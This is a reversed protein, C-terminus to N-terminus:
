RESTKGIDQVSESPLKGGDRPLDDVVSGLDLDEIKWTNNLACFITFAATSLDDRDCLGAMEDENDEIHVLGECVFTHDLVFEFTKAYPYVLLRRIYRELLFVFATDVDGTGHRQRVDIM